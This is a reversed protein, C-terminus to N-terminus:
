AVPGAEEIPNVSRTKIFNLLYYIAEAFFPLPDDFKLDDYSDDDFKLFDRIVAVKKRSNALHDILAILDGVIWRSKVGTKYEFVPEVDEEMAIKYLLYPFDVGAYVPLDVSGWFRPNIEMLWAKKREEDYKFEVMAVGHWRLHTLLRQAYEELLANRTSIRLTSTGGSAIKERLRKHVFRARLSGNNFLMSVGYGSGTVYGQVIPYLDSSLQFTEVVRVYTDILEARSDAYFVGKAGCSKRLKVVAPYSVEKSILDLDSLDKIYFTEPVPIGCREAIELTIAKDYAAMLNEYTTIPIRVDKPFLDRYRAVTFAEEYVPIFVRAGTEDLVRLIAEIFDKPHVRPSPYTFCGTAFGSFKAMALPSPDGVFVKIGKAALSRLIVYSVRCWGYTIVAKHDINRM